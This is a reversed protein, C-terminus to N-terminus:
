SHTIRQGKSGMKQLETYDYLSCVLQYFVKITCSSYSASFLLSNSLKTVSKCSSLLTCSNTRWAQEKKWAFWHCFKWLVLIFGVFLLLSDNIRILPIKFLLLQYKMQLINILFCNRKALKRKWFAIIQELSLECCSLQVKATNINPNIVQETGRKQISTNM